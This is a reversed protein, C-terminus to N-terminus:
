RCKLGSKGDCSRWIASLVLCTDSLKVLLSSFKIEGPFVCVLFNGVVVTFCVVGFYGAYLKPFPLGASPMNYRLPCVNMIVHLLM